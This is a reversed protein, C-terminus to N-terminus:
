ILSINRSKSQLRVWAVAPYIAEIRLVPFFAAVAQLVFGILSVSLLAAIWRRPRKSPNADLFDSPEPPEVIFHGAWSPRRPLVLQLVQGLVICAAIM